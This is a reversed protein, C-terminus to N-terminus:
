ILFYTLNSRYVEPLLLNFDKCQRNLIVILVQTFRTSIRLNVVFLSQNHNFGFLHANELRFPQNYAHWVEAFIESNEIAQPFFVM